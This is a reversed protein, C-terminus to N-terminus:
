LKWCCPRSWNVIDPTRHLGYFGPLLQLSSGLVWGRVCFCENLGSGKRVLGTVSYRAAAAGVRENPVMQEDPVQEPAHGTM